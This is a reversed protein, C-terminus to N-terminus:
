SKGLIAAFPAFFTLYSFTPVLSRFPFLRLLACLDCFFAVDSRYFPRSGLALTSGIVAIGGIQNMQAKQAKKRGNTKKRDKREKAAIM